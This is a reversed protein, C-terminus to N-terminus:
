LKFPFNIQTTYSKIESCLNDLRGKVFKNKGAIEIESYDALNLKRTEFKNKLSKDLLLIEGRKIVMLINEPNIKFFSDIINQSVKQEAVVLDASSGKSLLKHASINWFNSATNTLSDYIQKDDLQNLSRALRLHNWLNWDASVASDTGFLVSCKSSLRKAPCTEGYLFYNSDPCWIVAKFFEAQRENMKIAHIGVLRKKLFNWKILKEIEEFSEANTGEGIHVVVPKYNFLNNLKLKWNKELRVSHLYNYNTIVDILPNQLDFSNGHHVVATIGNLLNKYIGFKFRLDVPIQKIEEIIEINVNHIDEGWEIYDSYKKNGLKPFLNFELHDHSNILGPFAIVNEFDLKFQDKNTFDYQRESGSNIIIGDSFEIRSIEPSFPINLNNLIM